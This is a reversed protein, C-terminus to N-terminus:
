AVEEAREMAERVMEESIGLSQAVVAVVRDSPVTGLGQAREVAALIRDIQLITVNQEEPSKL